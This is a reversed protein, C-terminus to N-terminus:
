GRHDDEVGHQLQPGAQAADSVERVGSLVREHIQQNRHSAAFGDTSRQIVRCYTLTMQKSPCSHVKGAIFENDPLLDIRNSQCNSSAPERKQVAKGVESGAVGKGGRGVGSAHGAGDQTVWGVAPHKWPRQVPGRAPLVADGRGPVRVQCEDWVRLM